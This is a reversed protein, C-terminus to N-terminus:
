QEFVKSTQELSDEVLKITGPPRASYAAVVEAAIGLKEAQGPTIAEPPKLLNKGYMLGLIEIEAVPKTWKVHPRTFDTKYFPVRKGSRLMQLAMAEVGTIKADLRAAAMHLIRLERGVDTPSQQLLDAEGALDVINGGANHLTLCPGRAPCFECEPGTKAIPNPGLAAHAAYNADNIFTRLVTAAVKWSRVPGDRHFWRPQVIVLDLITTQDDLKLLDMIGAAYAMLQWNRFVEVYKHGYKYDVIRLTKGQVSYQWFDPTGWCQTPHIRPIQVTQEGMGPFGELAGVYVQGGDIMEQTVPMKNPTILGVIMAVGLAMQLAVWHAADGELTDETEPEPPMLASLSVTAHCQVIRALSSPAIPAHIDTM